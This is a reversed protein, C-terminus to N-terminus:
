EYGLEKVCDALRINAIFDESEAHVVEGSIYTKRPLVIYQYGKRHLTNVLKSAPDRAQVSWRVGCEDITDKM